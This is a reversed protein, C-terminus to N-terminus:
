VRWGSSCASVASRIFVSRAGELVTRSAAAAPRDYCMQLAMFDQRANLDLERFSRRVHEGLRLGRTPGGRMAWLRISWNPVIASMMADIHDVLKLHKLAEDPHGGGVGVHRAFRDLVPNLEDYIIPLCREDPHSTNHDALEDEIQLRIATKGSGREGFVIATAPRTFDGRIKEYDPHHCATEVRLLRQRAESGRGPLSEGFDPLPRPLHRHEHQRSEVAGRKRTNLLHVSEIPAVTYSIFATARSVGCRQASSRAEASANLLQHHRAAELMPFQRPEVKRSVSALARGSIAWTSESRCRTPPSAAKWEHWARRRSRGSAAVRLDAWRGWYVVLMPTGDIREVGSVGGRVPEDHVIGSVVIARREVSGSADLDPRGRDPSVTAIDRRMGPLIQPPPVLEVFLELRAAGRPKAKSALDLHARCKLIHRGGASGEGGIFKLLPAVQPCERAKLRGGAPREHMNLQMRDVSTLGEGGEFARLSRGVARCSCKSNGERMTRSARQKRGRRAPGRREICRM